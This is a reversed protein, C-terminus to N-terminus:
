ASPRQIGVRPIALHDEKRPVTEAHNCVVAATMAARTLGPVPVVHIPVGVIQCRDNLFKIEFVGSKYTVGSASAFHCLVDSAVTCFNSSTGLM